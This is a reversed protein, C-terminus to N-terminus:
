EREIESTDDQKEKGEFKIERNRQFIKGKIRRKKWKRAEM